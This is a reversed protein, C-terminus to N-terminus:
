DLYLFENLNIIAHCLDRLASFDPQANSREAYGRSQAQLFEAAWVAEKANPRRNLALQFLREIRPRAESGAERAVREALFGAQELVFQNNMLALAQPSVTSSARMPAPVVTVPCDYVELLPLPVSRKVFIYVSRRFTATEDKADLPWRPRSGTNVIDPDIRPYIGPGFMELNLKSTIALISDRLEEAEIRRPAMRWFLRNEPDKKAAAENLQSAQRYTASLLILRHMRKWSWGQRVLETALWDLLEPHSPRDGTAGFDSPTRVIGKGFHYQWIRNAAVRATLPNEPSAIWDALQRRRDTPALDAGASFLSPYGPGVAEGKTRWDGRKLLHATGPERKDTVGMVSPLLAPRTKNIKDIERQLEKRAALSEASLLPDIDEPQLNVEKAFRKATEERFQERTKDGFGNSNEALRVHFEVKEALLRERIPKEIAAIQDKFPKVQKDIEKNRAKWADVETQPVLPKEAKEFPFFVAQMRYYDRQPIPDYKHDHCRACGVTLGLFVSSTSSVMDDLEDMRTEENNANDVTPGNRCFGTAILAEADGAKLQDNALQERIFQDYPKDENFSRIVYDRYRWAHPRDIDFEYGGSDAYRALDLWHRGWREGYRPSALLTDILKAYAAESPNRVFAEVEEPSPPLGILDFYVRRVLERPTAAPGPKLGNEELKKVIFADIENRVGRRNRITVTPAAPRVPKAFSWFQRDKETISYGPQRVPAGEIAPAAAAVPALGKIWQGVLAIEAEPIKAGGLPMAPEERHAIMRYLVSKEPDGPVVAPGRAGGKLAGAETRLDLGSRQVRAGHCSTCNKEFIAAVKEPFLNQASAGRSRSAIVFGTILMLLILSKVARRGFVPM